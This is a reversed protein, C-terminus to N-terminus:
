SHNTTDGTNFSPPNPATRYIHMKNEDRYHMPVVLCSDRDSPLPLVLMVQGRYRLPYYGFPDGGSQLAHNRRYELEQETLNDPSTSWIALGTQYTTPVTDEKLPVVMYHQGPVAMFEGAISPHDSKFPMSVAGDLLRNEHFRRYVSNDVFQVNEKDFYAKWIYENTFYNTSEFRLPYLFRSYICFQGEHLIAQSPAARVASIVQEEYAKYERLVGIGDSSTYASLLLGFAVALLRLPWSRNTLAHVAIIVIVLSVTALPAYPRDTMMGLALMLLTSFFLLYSWISSGAAKFGKWILYGLGIGWAAVPVVYRVMKEGVIHFRSMLLEKFPLDVVIGGDAAREWAAPSALILLAGLGYFVLVLVVQRDVQGRHFLYYVVCAAIFAFSMAENGAGALFAGLLILGLQWSKVQLQRHRQLFRLVLLTGTITWLYNCSGALWLLTEGPVPYCTGICTYLMVQALLSHRGTALLSIVHALLGFMVANCVNFLPKGLLGCFLEALMDSSRGNLILYKNYYSRLLDGVTNVHTLDGIVLSHLMDDEKFPTLCNMVYFTVCAVLLLAWYAVEHWRKGARSSLFESSKMNVDVILSQTASDWM